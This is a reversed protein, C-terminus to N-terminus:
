SVSQRKKLEAARVPQNSEITPIQNLIIEQMESNLKLRFDWYPFESASSASLMQQQLDADFVMYAPIVPDGIPDTKPNSTFKIEGFQSFVPNGIPNDSNVVFESVQFCFRAIKELTFVKHDRIRALRYDGVTNKNLACGVGFANKSIQAVQRYSLGQIELCAAVVRALRQRGIEPHQERLQDALNDSRMFDM